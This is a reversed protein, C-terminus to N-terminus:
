QLVKQSKELASLERVPKRIMATRKSQGRYRRFLEQRGM